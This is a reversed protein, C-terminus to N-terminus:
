EKVASGTVAGAFRRAILEALNDDIEKYARELGGGQWEIRCDADKLAADPAFRIRGEFGQEAALAAAKAEIAACLGPSASVVIRTEGIAHHLATKLVEAVEAEPAAALAAGALKRAAALALMAGEARIAEVEADMARIASLIATAAQGISAALAQQARVEGDRKGEERAQGRIAEIEGQTYSKRLRPGAGNGAEATDFHTDFTFKAPNKM